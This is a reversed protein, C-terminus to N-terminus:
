NKKISSEKNARMKSQEPYNQAASNNRVPNQKIVHNRLLVQLTGSCRWTVWQVVVTRYDFVSPSIHQLFDRHKIQTELNLELLCDACCYLFQIVALDWVLVPIWASDDNSGKLQDDDVWFVNFDRLTYQVRQHAMAVNLGKQRKHWSCSSFAPIASLLCFSAFPSDSLRHSPNLRAYKLHSVYQMHAALLDMTQTTM